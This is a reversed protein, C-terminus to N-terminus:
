ADVRGAMQQIKVVVFEAPNLPAFGLIINVVGLDIDSQTTTETDCKVFYADRPTCVQFAGNRFLGHMFAGINLRIQAWLPEDNPEFVVWQTGRYLSEEIFLATRRVPIYKWESGARDAGALTRAGWVVKGKGPFSRLCNVALPNLEGNEADTLRVTLEPVGILAAELGAPAKWVGRLRDTRAFVGAVAGSSGFDRSNPEPNPQRLRPFFLAANKSTTGVGLAIGAKAAATTSWSVPSDLLLMACRAECYSAASSVLGKDVDFGSGTDKYGPICLLNFLDAKNLAYLGENASEKGAGTFDREELPGGDSAEDAAAVTAYTRIANDDWVDQGMAPDAHTGPRSPPLAVARVLKSNNELVKDVRHLQGADISADSFFEMEGTRGDRVSLNFTGPDM